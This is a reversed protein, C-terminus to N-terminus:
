ILRVNVLDGKQILEKGEDIYTLGNAETLAFIHASGHYESPVALGKENITVPFWSMREAKKRRYDDAIPIQLIVPQYNHGMMRFILHRVLLEFQIFSSVPNGPLGFVFKNDKIGFTTPKGPQVAIKQFLIDFGAKKLIGPVHDFEGMSVGGTLLIIDSAAIAKRIFEYTSSENDAAKGIYIANAGCQEVQAMLQYANSNRIQSLEPKNEPEVIEDGTSIIGVNIKKFVNINVAGVSALVAIHAPKLITGKTLVVDGKKLDEARYRINKKTKDKLYHVHNHDTMETFEVMLVCDAGEPIMAGTMIKACKGNTIINEPVKGAPITEVIELTQHIDSEKCAFGDMASRDFSPFDLDSFINEALVRNNANLFSITEHEPFVKASEVIRFAENLSIM